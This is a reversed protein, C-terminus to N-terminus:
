LKRAATSLAPEKLEIKRLKHTYRDVTARSRDCRNGEGLLDM